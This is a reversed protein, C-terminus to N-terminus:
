ADQRRSRQGVRRVGDPRLEEADFTELLMSLIHGGLADEGFLSVPARKCRAYPIAPADEKAAIPCEGGHDSLFARDGRGRLPEDIVEVDHLVDQALDPFVERPPEVPLQRFERL